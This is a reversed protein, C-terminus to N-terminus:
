DEIYGLAKLQEIIEPDEERTSEATGRLEQGRASLRDREQEFRRRSDVVVDPREEAVDRLEFPDSETDYLEETVAGDPGEIRFYKWGDLYFNVNDYTLWLWRRQETIAKPM